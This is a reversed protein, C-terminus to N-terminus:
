KLDSKKLLPLKCIYDNEKIGFEFSSCGVTNYIQRIGQYGVGISLTDSEARPQYHNSVILNNDKIHINICLPHMKTILNHKIANEVLLQLSLTPLYLHKNKDTIDYIKLELADAFRIKQLFYYQEVIYLEEAVTSFSEKRKELIYRYVKSLKIVFEQALHDNSGILARLSNLSNFLFHPNMQNKLQQIALFASEQEVKRRLNREKLWYHRAYVGGVILVFLFTLTIGLVYYHFEAVRETNALTPINIAIVWNENSIKFPYYKRVVPLSLFRSLHVEELPTNSQVVRTLENCETTDSIKVGIFKEEPHSLIKGFEDSIFVYSESIAAIEAFFDHLQKLEIDFGLIFDDTSSKQYSAIRWIDKNNFHQVGSHIESRSTYLSERLKLEKKVLMKIPEDPRLVFCFEGHLPYYWIMSIKRDVKGVINLLTHLQKESIKPENELLKVADILLRETKKFELMVERSRNTFVKEVFEDNMSRSLQELRQGILFLGLLAVAVIGCWITYIRRKKAM